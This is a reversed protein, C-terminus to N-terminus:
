EHNGDRSSGISGLVPVSFTTLRKEERHIKNAKTTINIKESSTKRPQGGHGKDNYNFHAWRMEALADRGSSAIKLWFLAAISFLHV